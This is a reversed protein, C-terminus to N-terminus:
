SASVENLVFTPLSSPDAFNAVDQVAAAFEPTATADVFAIEHDFALVAIGLFPPKGEGLFTAGQLYRRVGPIKLVVKSHVTRWYELADERSRSQDAHIVFTVEFM